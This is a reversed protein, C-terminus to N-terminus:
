KLGKLKEIANDKYVLRGPLFTRRNEMEAQILAQEQHLATLKKQLEQQAKMQEEGDLEIEVNEKREEVVEIQRQNMKYWKLDTRERDVEIFVITLMAMMISLIFSVLAWKGEGESLYGGAVTLGLVTM